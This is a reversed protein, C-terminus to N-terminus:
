STERSSWQLEEVRLVQGARMWERSAESLWCDQLERLRREAAEPSLWGSLEFAEVGTESELLEVVVQRRGSRSPALLHEPEPSPHVTNRTESELLVM